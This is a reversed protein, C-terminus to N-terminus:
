WTSRALLWLARAAFCGYWATYVVDLFTRPPDAVFADIFRVCGMTKSSWPTMSVQLLCWSDDLAIRVVCLNYIAGLDFPPTGPAVPARADDFRVRLTSSVPWSPSRSSGPSTSLSPSPTTYSPSRHQVSPAVLRFPVALQLRTSDARVGRVCSPARVEAM